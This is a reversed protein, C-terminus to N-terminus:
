KSVEGEDQQLAVALRLTDLKLKAARGILELLADSLVASAGSNADRLAQTAQGLRNAAEILKDTQTSM